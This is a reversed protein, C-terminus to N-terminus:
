NLLKLKLDNLQKRISADVQRDGVRLIYGGILKDDVKEELEVTKGTAEAVITIFQKRLADTLATSSTIYAKVIGKREDYLKIFADAISHMIGERNKHTIINFIGFSVPDVKDQFVGKLIALKKDHRVVPSKLALMLGRNDDSVTKFLVMDKYVTEVVNKEEALDILSKAYRLAVTSESM